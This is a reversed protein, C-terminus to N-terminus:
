KMKEVLGECIIAAGKAVALGDKIIKIEVDFEEPLFKYILNFDEEEFKEAIRGGFVVLQPDLIIVAKAVERCLIEFGGYRLLEERKLERGFKKKIAWGSFFTELHGRKGCVCKRKGGVYSHGIESALGRGKYLRSSAIIGSGVGTGLTIAFIHEKKFLYHSYAAFCNADNEIKLKSFLLKDFNKINPTKLIEGNRIWGAIAFVGDKYREIKKPNRLFDETKLTEVHRFKGDFEVIDTNTGGIDIGFSM